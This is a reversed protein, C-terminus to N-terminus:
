WALVCHNSVRSAGSRLRMRAASSIATAIWSPRSNTRGPDRWRAHSLTFEGFDRVARGHALANDWIFGASSYALADREEPNNGAPYSRPWGAFSRELYDTAMASTAWEHGDASLIGCCYTNDLLAFEGVLKHQNPTVQEGFVCLDRTATARRWTAWYRTTPATRRSSIFSTGSCARSASASPCPGRPCTPAAAAEGAGAASLAFEGDGHAHIIEVSKGVASTGALALRLIPNHPIRAKPGVAAGTGPSLSKLNAVYIAERRADHVIAAPFWGAPFLASGNPRAPGSAFYPSPTKRAMAFSFHRARSISHSRMPSRASCIPQTRGRAFRRSLRM